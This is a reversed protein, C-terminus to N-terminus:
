EMFKWKVDVIGVGREIGLLDWLGDSLDIGAKNRAKGWKRPLRRGSEAQPPRGKKWYDDYISWPGVDRVPCVVTLRGYKVAVIKGLANTHPLAVFVSDAKIKYGTATTEGVLGERSASVTQWGDPDKIQELWTAGILAPLLAIILLIKAKM